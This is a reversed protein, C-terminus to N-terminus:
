LAAGNRATRGRRRRPGGAVRAIARLDAGLTNLVLEFDEPVAVRRAGAHGARKGSAQSIRAHIAQDNSVGDRASRDRDAVGDPDGYVRIPEIEVAPSRIPSRAISESRQWSAREEGILPRAAPGSLQLRRATLEPNRDAEQRLFEEDLVPRTAQADS